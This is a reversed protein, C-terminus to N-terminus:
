GDEDDEESSSGREPSSDSLRERRNEECCPSCDHISDSDSNEARRRRKESQWTYACYAIWGILFYPVCGCVFAAIYAIVFIATRSGINEKGFQHIDELAVACAKNGCEGGVRIYCAVAKDEQEKWKDYLQLAATSQEERSAAEAGYSFACRLSSAPSNAAFDEQDDVEVLAWPLFVAADAHWDLRVLGEREPCHGDPVMWKEEFIGLGGVLARSDADRNGDLTAAKLSRSGASTAAAESAFARGAMELLTSDVAGPITGFSRIVDSLQRPLCFCSKKEGPKLDGWFSSVHGQGLTCKVPQLADRVIYHSIGGADSFNGVPTNGNHTTAAFLVNGGPCDCVGGDDACWRWGPCESFFDLTGFYASASFCGGRSAMGVGLIKCRHLDWSAATGGSVPSAWLKAEDRERPWSLLRWLGFIGFLFFQSCSCLWGLVHWAGSPAAVPLPM